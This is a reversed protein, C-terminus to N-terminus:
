QRTELREGVFIIGNEARAFSLPEWRALLKDLWWRLPKITIHRNRGDPLLGKSPELSIGFFVSQMALKRIHDLVADVREEEVHEMVDSCIVAKAPRPERAFRPIAPDYQQIEFPLLKQLEGKGCGYDIISTTGQSEIFPWIYEFQAAAVTGYAPDSKHLDANVRRYEESITEM